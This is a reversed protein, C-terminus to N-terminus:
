ETLLHTSVQDSFRNKNTSYTGTIIYQEMMLSLDHNYNPNSIKQRNSALTKRIPFVSLRVVVPVDEVCTYVMNFEQAKAKFIQFVNLGFNLSIM